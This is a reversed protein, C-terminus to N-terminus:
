SAGVDGDDRTGLGVAARGRWGTGLGLQGCWLHASRRTAAEELRPAGGRGARGPPARADGETSPGGTVHTM